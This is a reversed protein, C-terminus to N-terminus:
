SPLCCGRTVSPSLTRAPTTPTPMAFAPNPTHPGLHAVPLNETVLYPFIRELEYSPASVDPNGYYLRYSAGATASFIVKRVFGSARATTVPLPPNDENFVTIRYYRYRSEGFRISRDSGTFKPTDFDYLTENSQASSWALSDYSGELAAQRHFNRQPIDLQISNAPFGASGADLLLTTQKREPDEEREIITM